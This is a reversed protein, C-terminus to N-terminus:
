DANTGRRADQESNKARPQTKLRTRKKKVAVTNRAGRGRNQASQETRGGDAKQLKGRRELPDKAQKRRKPKSGGTSLQVELRKGEVRHGDMGQIAQQAALPNDFSVFGFGKSAGSAKERRIKASVVAGYPSFAQTIAEDGWAAPCHRVFLNSGAPGRESKAPPTRKRKGSQAKEAKKIGCSKTKLVRDKLPERKRRPKASGQQQRQAGTGGDTFIFKDVTNNVIRSLVSPPGVGVVTRGAKKLHCFVHSFDSDGTALVFCSLMPMSHLTSMVDVVMAIDAAAKGSVPHPTHVLQFGNEVLLAQHANVGAQSWDGFAKRVIPSGYEKAEQVLRQAGNDRKLFQGLNEADVFIAVGAHPAIQGDGEPSQQQVMGLLADSAINPAATQAREAAGFPAPGNKLGPGRQQGREKLVVRACGQNGQANLSNRDLVYQAAHALLPSSIFRKLGGHRAIVAKVGPCAKYLRSCLGAAAVQGGPANRVLGLLADAAAQEEWVTQQRQAAGEEPAGEGAAITHPQKVPRARERSTEKDRARRKPGVICQHDQRCVWLGAAGRTRLDPAMCALRRRKRHLACVATPPRPRPGAAPLDAGGAGADADSDSSSPDSDFITKVM